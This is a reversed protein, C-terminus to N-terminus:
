SDVTNEHVMEGKLLDYLREFKEFCRTYIKNDKDNPIYAAATQHHFVTEISLAEAGLIVAGLAASEVAASVLVEINFVDALMQLWVASKAFGGSAYIETVEKKEALIKGISYLSLIVGEMSARILHAKTHQITLGFYVGKANSNWMPAREGLIYPLFLLGESGAEIKVAQEFLQEYDDNTQLLTEKLWQLVIAGNNSAGGAIYLDDKLHFCFTRMLSDTEPASIVMRAAGSTGITVAMANSGVAGTGLNSLAGDSAGIVFPINQTLALQPYIGKYYLVHKTSVTQSLRSAIIGTYSLIEEDWQLTKINLLGTASAISTDVVYVGFLKYFIYEKIGIFKFANSFIAPEYEKFWLLKCLPSMAHIPVGTLHYFEKGKDTNRLMDAIVDARNDAWIICQTLLNGKEDVAILSHMAASFSIFLPTAPALTEVVKNIGKMVAMFIEDPDQENRDPQPHYMEYTFSFSAIIGGQENFAVAKVSTTGVDIGLYYNM